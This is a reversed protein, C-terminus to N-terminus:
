GGFDAEITCGIRMADMVEFEARVERGRMQRLGPSYVPLPNVESTEPDVYRGGQWRAAGTEIWPSAPSARYYFRMVVVHDLDEYIATTPINLRVLVERCALDLVIVPTPYVGPQRQSEPVALLTTFAM